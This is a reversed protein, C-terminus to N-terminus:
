KAARKTEEEKRGKRWPADKGGAGGPGENGNYTSPGGWAAGGGRGTEAAGTQFKPSIAFVGLKGVVSNIDTSEKVGAKGASITMGISAPQVGSDGVNGSNAQANKTISAVKYSWANDNGTCPTANWTPEFLIGNKALDNGSIIINLTTNGSTLYTQNQTAAGAAALMEGPPPTTVSPPTYAPLCAQLDVAWDSVGGMNLGQYTTTRSAKTDNTMYGVWQLTDYVLIDSDSEDDHFSFNKAEVGAKTIVSLANLSETLNVHSRLCSGAPCGLDDFAGGYDWVISLSVGSPLLPRLGLLFAALNQGDSTSDAPIGPIDQEGPYEFAVLNSAFTQQNASSSVADRFVTYTDPDTSMAWSLGIRKIGTLTVFKNFQYQYQSTDVDFIRTLDLFAFHVHTYQTTDLLIYPQRRYPLHKLVDQSTIDDWALGPERNGAAILAYIADQSTDQSDLLGCRNTKDLSKAAYPRPTTTPSLNEKQGPSSPSKDSAFETAFEYDLKRRKALRYADASECEQPTRQAEQEDRVEHKHQSQEYELGASYVTSPSSPLLFTDDSTPPLDDSLPLEGLCWLRHPIRKVNMTKAPNWWPRDLRPGARSKSFLTRESPTVPPDM